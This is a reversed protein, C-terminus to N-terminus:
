TPTSPAAPGSRRATSWTTTARAGPSPACRRPTPAAPRSPSASRRCACNAPPSRRCTPPRRRPRATACSPAWSTCRPTAPPATAASLPLGAGGYEEPILAALYGAETLARVFETPYARVQDLKRWYEGPFRACLKAVEVRIESHPDTPLPQDM